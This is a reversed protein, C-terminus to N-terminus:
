RQRSRTWQLLATESYRIARGIRIFPPGIGPQMRSKALWSVSLRLFQAAEPPKLLRETAACNGDNQLTM